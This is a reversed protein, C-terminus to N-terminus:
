KFFNELLEGMPGDYWAECMYGFGHQDGVGYNIYTKGDFDCMELDSASCIFRTRIEKAFPESIESATPSVQRDERSCIVLPNYRGCEWHRFDATRYLYTVYRENPLETVLAVYYFGNYYRIFPGGAYRHKPFCVDPPLHTWTKLDKSTAFFMTFKCTAHEPADAEMLLVYGDPGKTLSTNFYRWGPNTLLKRRTWRRLDTSEFAWITDGPHGGNQRETGTVLVRDNECFAAYYYCDEGFTSVIRGTAVDRIGACIGKQAANLGRSPDILELRMLRGKFVFPSVEGYPSTAGLKRINPYDSRMEKFLYTESVADRPKEVVDPPSCKRFVFFEPQMQAFPGAATWRASAKGFPREVGNEDLRSVAAGAWAPAVAFDLKEREDGSLNNVMVMMARGDAAVQALTWIGPAGLAMVPLADPDQLRFFNQLVEQKRLNLLGSSRNWLLSTALVGATGGRANRAVTLSPTVAKGGVGSFRCWTETGARPKLTAFTHVSGETGANFIYFANVDRGKRTLGAAPLIEERIVPLRGKALEVDVGLDAAFGRKALLDAAPADVLVCGALVEKLAADSMVEVIEGALVAPGKADPRSTYPLGFKALLFAAESLQSCHWNDFGRTLSAGDACWVARVGLLKADEKRIFDRVAELRPKLARYRDAYGPDEIPDDLYQLCYLQLNQSGMFVAGSMLSGMQAASSFFRNHPYPDAEYFTEIDKPLCELTYLTHGLAGPIDAPTTQAGYIAGYPRLAPRTKPGAFARVLSEVADGDKDIGDPECLMIRVSPDVEDVAARIKRAIECLSERVTEAFARRVSLNEPTRREFAAAIESGTLPKGHIKAFLALHRRCFCACGRLGRGRSLTFDDEINVIRPRAAAVTEKVKAAWDAQFAPDLPCNKNDASKGGWADEIPTFDSVYRISPACWWNVEVGLPELATRVEGIERGMVAYLNTAFPAYMVENFGPGAIFFRRLGTRAHIDKLDQVMAGVQGRRWVYPVTPEMEALGTMATLAVVAASRIWIMVGKNM